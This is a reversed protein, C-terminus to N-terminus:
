LAQAGAGAKMLEGRVWRLWPDHPGHLQENTASLPAWYPTLQTGRKRLFLLYEGGAQYVRAFCGGHGGPRVMGYPVPGDNFDPREAMRGPVSLGVVSAGKLVEIVTFRVLSESAPTTAPDGGAAVVAELARVYVISDADRVLSEPPSPSAFCAFAADAGCLLIGAFLIFTSRVM